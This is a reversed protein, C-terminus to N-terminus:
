RRKPNFDPNKEAGLKDAIMQALYEAIAPASTLGPSEIGAANFFLKADPAEGIIFDDRDSHARVGSFTTIFSRTPLEEWTKLAGALAKDLGFRTTRTDDSDDIDEATPGILITGDVTPAVLIGKGLKTPLQFIAANFYGAYKKDVIYYEGRRPNIKFKDESVMDNIADSHAGACNVVAKALFTGATSEVKYGNAEKVINTVEASRIFEVGNEAANEAYAFTLGYPCVIGGTEVLLAKTAKKSVNPERRRIEDAGIISLKKVGNKEGRELLENLKPDDEENFSVVLSTNWKYPVELESCIRDFMLNGAVNYKAKLTGPKADYGGHIIATNAKSQGACIDFSKELLLIKLRYRSLERAVACGVVGGGIILVDYM